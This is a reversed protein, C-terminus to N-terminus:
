SVYGTAPLGPATSTFSLTLVADMDLPYSSGLNITVVPQDTITRPQQPVSMQVTPTAPLNVTFTYNQVVAQGGGDSVGIRINGFTGNTTPTGRLIGTNRDITLFSPLGTASWIFAPTGGTTTFTQTYLRGVEGAPLTTPTIGLGSIIRLALTA